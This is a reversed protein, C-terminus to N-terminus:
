SACLFHGALHLIPRWTRCRPGFLPARRGSTFVISPMFGAIAVGLMAAAITTFFWREIIDAKSSWQVTAVSSMGAGGRWILTVMNNAPRTAPYYFHVYREACCM